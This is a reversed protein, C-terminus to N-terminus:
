NIDKAIKLFPKINNEKCWATYFPYPDTHRYLEVGEQFNKEIDDYSLNNKQCEFAYFSAIELLPKLRDEPTQKEVM